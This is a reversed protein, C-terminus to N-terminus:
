TYIFLRKKSNFFTHKEKFNINEVCKNSSLLHSLYSLQIKIIRLNKTITTEYVNVM